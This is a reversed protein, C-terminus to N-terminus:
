PAVDRVCRVSALFAKPIRLRTVGAENMNLTPAGAESGSGTSSWYHAGVGLGDFSWGDFGGGPRARFGVADTAGTNPAFWHSTGAEKLAGGAVDEGGLLTFLRNWDDDSPIRWGPPAIGQAGPETAGNM